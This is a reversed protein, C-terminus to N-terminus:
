LNPKKSTFRKLANHENTGNAHINYDVCNKGGFSGIQFRIGEVGDVCQM